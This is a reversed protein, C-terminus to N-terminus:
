TEPPPVFCILGRAPSWCAVPRSTPNFQRFLVKSPPVEIWGPDLLAEPGDRSNRNAILPFGHQRDILVEWHDGAVRAETVKCDIGGCCGLGNLRLGGMYNDFDGDHAHAMSIISVAVLVVCLTMVLWILAWAARQGVRHSM